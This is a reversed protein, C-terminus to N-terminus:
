LKGGVIHGMEIENEWVHAAKAKRDYFEAYFICLYVCADNRKKQENDKSCDYLVFLTPFFM